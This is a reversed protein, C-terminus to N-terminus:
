KMLNWQGTFGYRCKSYHWRIYLFINDISLSFMDLRTTLVRNIDQCMVTGPCRCVCHHGLKHGMYDLTDQWFPGIQWAYAHRTPGKQCSVMSIHPILLQPDVFKIRIMDDDWIDLKMPGVHPGDPVSLVWTPGMNARHVKSDPINKSSILHSLIDINVIM